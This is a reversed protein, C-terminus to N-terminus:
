ASSDKSRFSRSAKAGSRKKFSSSSESAADEQDPVDSLAPLTKQRFKFGRLSEGGGGGDDDYDDGASEIAARFSPASLLPFFITTM